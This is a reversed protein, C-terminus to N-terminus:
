PMAWLQSARMQQVALPQASLASAEVGAILEARGVAHQGRHAHRREGLTGAPLQGGGALDHWPCLTSVM